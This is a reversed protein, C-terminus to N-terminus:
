NRVLGARGGAILTAINAVAIPRRTGGPSVLYSPEWEPYFWAKFERLGQFNYYREGGIRIAAALQNWVPAGAGTRIGSLPVMGLNFHAYGQARSWLMFETLLYRMIGPPADSVHRMLDVEVEAREGAAWGTAFAVIREDMRVLALPGRAVFAPDFHGLSFTKERANKEALWENSIGRLAPLHEHAASGPLVEFTCGADVLKRWVRRLNRRSSGELSFDRLPVRAVEGLKSVALGYELYLYLLQPGVRYFVPWSGERDCQTILQEVLASAQDIPGVPDGMAVRCEGSTGMMIFAGGRESLLFEKDGILALHANARPSEAVILEITTMDMAQRPPRVRAPRLLRAMSLALLTVIVLTLGRAARPGQADGTFDWFVRTSVFQRGYGIYALAATAALVGALAGFWGRTFREELLSSRRYFYRRCPLLAAFMISLFAAQEVDLASAIAFTIGAALVWLTLHYAADLRRQLGRALVILVIGAVSELYASLEVVPLPLVDIVWGLRGAKAPIAGSFLLIVGALFTTFALLRPVLATSASGGARVLRALSPWRPALAVAVLIVVGIALVTLLHGVPHQAAPPM